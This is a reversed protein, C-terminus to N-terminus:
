RTNWLEIAPEDLSRHEYGLASLTGADLGLNRGNLIPLGIWRVAVSRLLHGHAFLAVTGDVGRLRTLLADVRATVQAPSEGDPCGDHFVDWGAQRQRIEANTLGEYLGYDWERLSEEIRAQAAFGALECTRQARQMPSVLVASVSEGGLQERLREGIHRAQAEGRATLPIDSRGTHRGRLSWTTEGHRILYIQEVVREPEM